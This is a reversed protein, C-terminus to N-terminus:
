LVTLMVQAHTTRIDVDGLKDVKEKRGWSMTGEMDGSSRQKVDVYRVRGLGEPDEADDDYHMVMGSSRSTHLHFAGEYRTNVSVSAPSNTTAADIDLHAYSPSIPFQLSLPDNTTKANVDFSGGTGNKADSILDVFSALPSRHHILDLATRLLQPIVIVRRNTTLMTLKTPTRAKANHLKVFTSIVGNTTILTLDKHATFNGVIHGNTTKIVAKQASSAVVNMHASSSSLSLTEFEIGGEFNQMNHGFHPLNTELRKIRLPDQTASVPFRVVVTFDVIALVTSHWKYPTFFGIGREGSKRELQCISVLGATESTRHSVIVDVVMTDNAALSEDQQFMVNGTALSGRSFLYLADSSLPLKFSVMPSATNVHWPDQRSLCRHIVGDSPIPWGLTDRSRRGLGILSGTFAWFLAYIAIAWIFAKVFRKAARRRSIRDFDDRSPGPQPAGGSSSAVPYGPQQRQYSPYAAAANYPPPGPEQTPNTTRAAEALERQVKTPSPPTDDTIIM